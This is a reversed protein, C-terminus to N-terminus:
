EAQDFPCPIQQTGDMPCVLMVASGRCVLLGLNRTQDGTVEFSEDDRLYEIADDLVLNVLPDWGKLIGEVERGGNFKVLVRKDIHKNLDLISEHKRTAM